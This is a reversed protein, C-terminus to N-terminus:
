DKAGEQDIRLRSPKRKIKDLFIQGELGSGGDDVTTKQDQGAAARLISNSTQVPHGHLRWLFRQGDEEDQAQEEDTESFGPARGRFPIRKLEKRLEFLISQWFELKAELIRSHAQSTVLTQLLIAKREIPLKWAEFLKSAIEKQLPRLSETFHPNKLDRVALCRGIKLASQETTLSEALLIWLATAPDAEIAANTRVERIIEQQGPTFDTMHIEGSKFQSFQKANLSHYLSELREFDSDTMLTVMWQDQLM